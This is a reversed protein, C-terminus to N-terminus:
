AFRENVVDILRRGAEIPGVGRREMAVGAALLTLGGIALWIPTSVASTVGLTEHITTAVVLLTGVLLPGALRRAGGAAVAMAGVGGAVLAHWAPGGDLRELLAAGGLLVVAPAHALWSSVDHERHAITGAVLLLLAVPVVYPESATVGTQQLHSWLGVTAIGLGITALDTRRLSVGVAVVTGGVLLLNTAFAPAHDLSLALGIGGAVVASVVAPPAWRAPLCSGLGLWAVGTLTVLVGADATTWGAHGALGLVGFPLATGAGILLLPEDRRVADVVALAAVLGAIGAEAHDPLLPLFAVPVLGAIRPVIALPVTGAQLEARDLVAAVLWAAVVAGAAAAVREDKAALVIAGSAIPVLALFTLVLATPRTVVPGTIASASPISRTLATAAEAIALAGVLALAAVLPRNREAVFPAWALLHAAMIQHADGRAPWSASLVPALLAAAAGFGTLAVATALSSASFLAVAASAAVAVAFPALAASVPLPSRELRFAGPRGAAFRQVHAEGVLWTLAVLAAALGTTPDRVPDYSAVVLDAALRVTLVSTVVEGAQALLETPRQWFDDDRWAWAAVQVVLLLAAGAALSAPGSPELGAWTTVLGTLASGVALIAVPLSRRRHATIGLALGAVLGTAAATPHPAAGALGLDTLVGAAPWGLEQAGSLPVALGALAAWGAAGWELGLRRGDDRPRDIWAQALTAALAVGAVVLGAPAGSVGGIGAALAVVGGWAAVRLVISRETWAAAGFTVTAALGQALLMESWTWGLHMGVAAVDIPVLLVGLHFLVTATLPLSARLRRHALLCADTVVILAGLKVQDPIAGWHMAVFTAAAAILLFAGLGATWLAGTSAGEPPPPRLPPDATSAAM